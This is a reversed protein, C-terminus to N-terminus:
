NRKHTEIPNTKIFANLNIFRHIEFLNIEWYILISVNPKHIFYAGVRQRWASQMCNLETRELVIFYDLSSGTGKSNFDIICLNIMWKIIIRSDIDCRLSSWITSDIFSVAFLILIEIYARNQRRTERWEDIWEHMCVTDTYNSYKNPFQSYVFCCHHKPWPHFMSISAFHINMVGLSDCIYCWFISSLQLVTYKREWETDVKTTFIFAICARTCVYVCMDTCCSCCSCSYCFLFVCLSVVFLIMHVSLKFRFNTAFKRLEGYRELRESERERERWWRSKSSGNQQM